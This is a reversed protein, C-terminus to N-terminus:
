TGMASSGSLVTRLAKRIQIMKPPKGLILDVDNPIKDTDNMLNGWGSLMIVPTDKKLQKIKEAVEWGDMGPMGLDTIVVDFFDGSKVAEEFVAIGDFGSEVSVPTHGEMELIEKLGDRVKSDDDICLIRLPPLPSSVEESIREIKAEGRIPFILRIKTGKGEKTEIEMTGNHREMSGFVSSLGLGSGRNGKTTFFPELCKQKQEETMGKGTDEVELVMERGIEIVRLTITGDEPMADVANFILNVLAERIESKLGIMTPNTRPIDLEMNITIGSKQALDQWRPRTIEVVNDILKRLDITQLDSESGDKKRYFLRLRSIINEIDETAVQIIKLFRKGRESLNLESELLAEAYLTIPALTNNIDHAIGSAMQGMANLREHELMVDQARKLQEYSEQLETFIAEKIYSVSIDGAVGSLFSREYEGFSDCDTFALVIKGRESRDAVIPLSVVSRIGYSSLKESLPAELEAVSAICIAGLSSVASGNNNSDSPSDIDAPLAYLMSADGTFVSHEAPLRSIVKNRVTEDNLVVFGFEYGFTKKLHVLVEDCISTFDNRKAIERSISSRIGMWHIQKELQQKGEVEETINNFSTVVGSQRKSDSDNLPQSNVSIWLPTERSDHIEMIVNRQPEGTKLTVVSPFTERSFSSGDEKTARAYFDFDALGVWQEATLGLFEEAKSNYSLIRGEMDQILIGEALSDVVAFYRDRMSWLEKYSDAISSIDMITALVFPTNDVELPAMRIHLPIERGYKCVGIDQM